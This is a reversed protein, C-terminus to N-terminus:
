VGKGIKFWDTTGHETRVTAEQGVHLNRLLCTLHDPIEVEKPIKWLKNHDAYWSSRQYSLSLSDAQLAPSVSKIGPNRVYGPPALSLGSCYKQRFFEMTLPAQHAVTRLDCLTLRSQAVLCLHVCM